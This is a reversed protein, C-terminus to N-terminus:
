GPFIFLLDQIEVTALTELTCENGGKNKGVNGFMELAKKREENPSLKQDGLLGKQGERFRSANRQSRRLVNQESCM